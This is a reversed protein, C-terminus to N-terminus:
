DTIWHWEAQELLWDVDIIDGERYVAAFKKAKKGQVWIRLGDEFTLTLFAPASMTGGDFEVKTIEWGDM